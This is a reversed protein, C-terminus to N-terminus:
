SIRLLYLLNKSIMQKLESLKDNGEKSLVIFGYDDHGIFIIQLKPIFLNVMSNQVFDYICDRSVEKIPIITNAQRKYSLYVEYNNSLENILSHFRDVIDIKEYENLKDINELLDEYTKMMFPFASCRGYAIGKEVWLDDDNIECLPQFLPDYLNEISLIDMISVSKGVLIFM